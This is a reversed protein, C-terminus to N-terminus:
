KPVPAYLNDCMNERLKGPQELYDITSFEQTDIVGHTRGIFSIIHTPKQENLEQLLTDINDVRSNGLIYNLKKSNLINIFQQGIWGKHGYVMITM